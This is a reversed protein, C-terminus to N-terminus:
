NGTPTPRLPFGVALVQVPASGEPRQAPDVRDVYRLV